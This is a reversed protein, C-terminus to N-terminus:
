GGEEFRRRWDPDELLTRQKGKELLFPGLVLADMETRMFCRYAELPTCVTPEGPLNLSSQLLVACGTRTRFSQLLDHFPPNEERRVVQALASGDLHTVAPVGPGDDLTGRAGDHGGVGAGRRRLARVTSAVQACFSGSRVEFYEAAEEFPVGAACLRFPERYKVERNMRERLDARRADALVTRNGRPLPGFEMRGQFWGVIRGEALLRAAERPVDEWSLRESQAGVRDLVAGIEEETFGPGLFGERAEASGGGPNRDRELYGHWAHLAAGLAAGGDDPAPPIWLRAFPGERALRGDAAARVATEGSLVLNEEGTLGHLHRAIRLLAEGVVDQVSRALDRERRGVPLGPERPPGFLAEFRADTLRGNPPLNFCTLDVRFSGDERLDLLRDRIRDVYTPEGLAAIELLRPDAARPAFGCAESFAGLLLGLSHPYRMERLLEIRRGEGRGLSTTAWEGGDDCVLIAAKPFPSGYFANAAHSEHGECYLIPGGYGGLANSVISPVRLTEQMWAGAARLFPRFARPACALHVELDRMFRSVPKGHLVVVDVGEADIGAERLCFAVAGSPFRSDRPRRSFREEAAAALTTGDRLLAAAAVGHFASIGLLHM